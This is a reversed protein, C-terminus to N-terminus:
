RAHQTELDTLHGRLRALAELWTAQDGGLPDVFDFTFESQLFHSLEKYKARSAELRKKADAKSGSVSGLLAHYESLLEAFLKGTRLCRQLYEVDQREQQRADGVLWRENWSFLAESVM